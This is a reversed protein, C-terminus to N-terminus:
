SPYQIHKNFLFTQLLSARLDDDMSTGRHICWRDMSNQDDAYEVTAFYQRHDKLQEINTKEVLCTPQDKNEIQYSKSIKILRIM